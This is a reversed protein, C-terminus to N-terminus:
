LLEEIKSTLWLRGAINDVESLDIKFKNLDVKKGLKAKILKKSFRLYSLHAQKAYSDVYNSRRLYKEFAEIFYSITHWEGLEYYCQLM